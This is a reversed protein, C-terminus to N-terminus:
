RRRFGTKKDFDWYEDAGVTKYQGQFSRQGSYAYSNTRRLSGVSSRPIQVEHTGNPKLYIIADYESNELAQANQRDMRQWQRAPLGSTRVKPDEGPHLATWAAIVNDRDSSENVVLPNKIDLQYQEFSEADRITYGNGDAAPIKERAFAYRTVEEPSASLFIMGNPADLNGVRYLEYTGPQGFNPSNETILGGRGSTSGRGGM